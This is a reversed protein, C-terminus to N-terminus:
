RDVRTRRGQDAGEGRVGRRADRAARLLSDEVAEFVASGAGALVLTYPSAPYREQLVSILSDSTAPYLAAIALLAKPALVSGGYVEEVQAFLSSALAANALSDRVDEAALFLGLATGSETLGAQARTLVSVRAGGVRVPDGGLRLAENLSDLLEPLQEWSTARAVAFAALHARASRGELSDPALAGVQAFRNGATVSDGVGLWRRGDQLWLRLREGVRRTPDDALRDVLGAVAAPSGAGVTDLAPLWSAEEYPGDALQQLMGVAEPRRDLRTLALARDFDAERRGSAALEELAEADRGLRLLAQGRLLHARSQESAEGSAFVPGVAALTSEPERLQLRCEGMLLRAEVGLHRDTSSDAAVALPAV